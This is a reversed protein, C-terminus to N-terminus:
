NRTIKKIEHIQKSMNCYHNLVEKQLKRYLIRKHLCPFRIRQINNYIIKQKFQFLKRKLKKM